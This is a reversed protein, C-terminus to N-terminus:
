RPSPGLQFQCHSAAQGAGPGLLRQKSDLHAEIRDLEGELWCRRNEVEEVQCMDIEFQMATQERWRDIIRLQRHIWCLYSVDDQPMCM